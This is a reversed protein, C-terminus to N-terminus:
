YGKFSPEAGYKFVLDEAVKDLHNTTIGPKVKEELEKMIQALIKGGQRMIEIEQKTKVLTM